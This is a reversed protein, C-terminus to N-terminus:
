GGPATTCGQTAETIQQEMSAPMSGSGAAALDEASITTSLRDAICGAQEDTMGQNKFEDFLQQRVDSQPICATVIKEFASTSESFIARMLEGSHPYRDVLGSTICDTAEAPLADDGSGAGKAIAAAIDATDVCGDFGGIVADQEAKSLDSFDSEDNEVMAQRAKSSLKPLVANGVCRADAKSIGPGGKGSLAAVLKDLQGQDVSGSGATTPAGSDAGNNADDGCGALLGITACALLLIAPLRRV